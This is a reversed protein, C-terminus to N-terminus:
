REAQFTFGEKRMWPIIRNYADQYTLGLKSAITMVSVPEHKNFNSYIDARTIDRWVIEEPKGGFRFMMQRKAKVETQLDIADFLTIFEKRSSEELQQLAKYYAKAKESFKEEDYACGADTNPSLTYEMNYFDEKFKEFDELSTIESRLRLLRQVEESLTPELKRWEEEVNREVEEEEEEEKEQSPKLSEIHTKLLNVLYDNIEGEKVNAKLWQHYEEPMRLIFQKLKKKEEL